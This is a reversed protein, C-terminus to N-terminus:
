ARRTPQYRAPGDDPLSRAPHAPAPSDYAREGTDTAAARPMLPALLPDHAGPVPRNLVNVDLANMDLARRTATQPSSPAPDDAPRAHEVAVAPPNALSQSLAAARRQQTPTTAPEVAALPPVPRPPEETVPRPPNTTAPPRQPPVPAPAKSPTVTPTSASRPSSFTIRTGSGIVPEIVAPTPTPVPVSQRTPEKTESTEPPRKQPSSESAEATRPSSFTIRTRAGLLPAPTIPALSAPAPSPKKTTPASSSPAAEADGSTTPRNTPQVLPANQEPPEPRPTRPPFPMLQPTSQQPAAPQPESAQVPASGGVGPRPMPGPRSGTTRQETASPGIAAPDGTTVPRPTQAPRRVPPPDAPRSAAAQSPVPTPRIQPTPNVSPRPAAPAASVSGTNRVPSAPRTAPESTPSAPRPPQAPSPAPTRSVVPAPRPPAAPQEPAPAPAPSVAPIHVTTAQSAHSTGEIDQAPRVYVAPRAATPAPPEGSLRVIPLKTTPSDALDDITGLRAMHDLVSERTPAALDDVIRGDALFLARDAHAAATPDHTVMVITQGMETVSRALFALVEASSHSDLNGTPEDAFIIDPKSVLARACAVRQQQGGSLQSPKHTLRDGLGVTEIVQDFWDRDPKRGAIALPLEINERATLTPVLNFAQFIFGIRDRRLATLKSDRLTSIATDGIFVDGSTPKDLGAVCHMLTSKGSGSPGMVATFRGKSFDVNVHDLATVKADGQGYVKTLSRTHAAVRTLTSAPATM